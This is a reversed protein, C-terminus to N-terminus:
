QGGFTRNVILIPFQDGPGDSAGDPESELRQAWGRLGCVTPCASLREDNWNDARRRMRAQSSDIPARADSPM